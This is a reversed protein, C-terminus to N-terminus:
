ELDIKVEVGNSRQLEAWAQVRSWAVHRRADTNYSGLISVELADPAVAAAVLDSRSTLDSLLVGLMSADSIRFTTM